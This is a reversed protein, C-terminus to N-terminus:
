KKFEMYKLGLQKYIDSARPLDLIKAIILNYIEDLLFVLCISFSIILFKKKDMKNALYYCFPVILYILM